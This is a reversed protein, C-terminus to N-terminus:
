SPLPQELGVQGHGLLSSPIGTRYNNNMGTFYNEWETCTPINSAMVRVVINKPITGKIMMEWSLFLMSGVELLLYMWRWFYITITFREDRECLHRETMVNEDQKEPPTKMPAQRRSRIGSTSSIKLFTTCVKKKLNLQILVITIKTRTFTWNSCRQAITVTYNRKNLWKGFPARHRSPLTHLPFLKELRARSRRGRSRVWGWWQALQGGSEPKFIRSITVKINGKFCSCSAWLSSTLSSSLCGSIGLVGPHVESLKQFTYILTSNWVYDGPYSSLIRREPLSHHPVPMKFWM